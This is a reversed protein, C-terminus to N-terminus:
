PETEKNTFLTLWCACPTRATWQSRWGAPERLGPGRGIARGYLPRSEVGSAETAPYRVVPGWGQRRSWVSPLGQKGRGQRCAPATHLCAQRGARGDARRLCFRRSSKQEAAWCRLGQPYWYDNACWQRCPQHIKSPLIATKHYLSTQLQLNAQPFRAPDLLFSLHAGFLQPLLFDTGVSGSVREAERILRFDHCHYSRVQCSPGTPIGRRKINRVVVTM